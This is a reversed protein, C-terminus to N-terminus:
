HSVQWVRSAALSLADHGNANGILSKLHAGLTELYSYGSSLFTVFSLLQLVKLLQTVALM